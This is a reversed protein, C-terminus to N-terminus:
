DYNKSMKMSNLLVVVNVKMFKRKTENNWLWSSLPIKFGTIKQYLVGLNTATRNHLSWLSANLYIKQVYSGVPAM